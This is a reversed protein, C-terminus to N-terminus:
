PRFAKSTGTWFACCPARGAVRGAAGLQHTRHTTERLSRRGTHGRGCRGPGTRTPPRLLTLGGGHMRPRPRRGSSRGCSSINRVGGSTEHGGATGSAGACWCAICGPRVFESWAVRQCAAPPRFASPRWRGVSVPQEAPRAAKRAGERNVQQQIRMQVRELTIAVASTGRVDTSGGALTVTICM